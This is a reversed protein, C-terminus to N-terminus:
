DQPRDNVASVQDQAARWRAREDARDSLVRALFAELDKAMVSVRVTGSNLPMGYGGGLAVSHLKLGAEEAMSRVVGALAEADHAEEDAKVKAAARREAFKADEAHVDAWLGRLSSTTVYDTRDVRDHEMYADPRGVVTVRVYRGKPSEYYRSRGGGMMYSREAYRTLAELVVERGTGSRRDWNRQSSEQYYRGGVKLDSMKM